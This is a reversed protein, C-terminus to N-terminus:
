KGKRLIIASPYGSFETFNQFNISTFNSSFTTMSFASPQESPTDIIAIYTSDNTDGICVLSLYTKGSTNTNKEIGSTFNIASANIPVKYVSNNSILYLYNQYVSSNAGFYEGNTLLDSSIKTINFLDGSQNLRIRLFGSDNGSGYSGTAALDCYIGDLEEHVFIQQFNTLSYGILANNLEIEQIKQLNDKRLIYIISNLYNIVPYNSYDINTNITILYNSNLSAIAQIGGNSTYLADSETYVGNELNLKVVKGSTNGSIYMYNGEIFGNYPNTGAPLSFRTLYCLNGTFKTVSNDLSNIIYIYEEDSSFLIQQPGYNTNESPGVPIMNQAFKGTSIDYPIVVNGTSNLLLLYDHSYYLIDDYTSVCSSFILFILFFIPLILKLHKSKM